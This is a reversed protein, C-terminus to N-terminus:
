FPNQRLARGIVGASGASRIWTVNREVTLEIEVEEAVKFFMVSPDKLGGGTGIPFRTDRFRRQSIFSSLAQGASSAM